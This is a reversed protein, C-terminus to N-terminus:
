TPESSVSDRLNVVLGPTDEELQAVCFVSQIDGQCEYNGCMLPNKDWVGIIEIGRPKRHCSSCPCSPLTPSSINGPAARLKSTHEVGDSM